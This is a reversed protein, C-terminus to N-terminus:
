SNQWGIFCNETKPIVLLQVLGYRAFITFPRIEKDIKHDSFEWVYFTDHAPASYYQLIWANPCLAPGRQCCGWTVKGINWTSISTRQDTKSTTWCLTFLTRTIGFFFFFFFFFIAKDEYTNMKHDWLYQHKCAKTHWKQIIKFVGHKMMMQLLETWFTIEKLQSNLSIPVFFM